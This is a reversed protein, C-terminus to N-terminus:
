RVIALPVVPVAVHFASQTQVGTVGSPPPPDICAKLANAASSRMHPPTSRRQPPAYSPPPAVSALTVPATDDSSYRAYEGSEGSLRLRPVPPPPPAGGSGPRAAELREFLLKVASDVLPGGVMAGLKQTVILRLVRRDLASPTRNALVLGALRVLEDAELLHEFLASLAHESLMSDPTGLTSLLWAKAEATHMKRLALVAASRVRLERDDVFRLITPVDVVLGAHGLAALLLCKESADTASFLDRRLAECARMAPEVLGWVHARGAVAGLAHAGAAHVEAEQRTEAYIRVLFRLTDADPRELYGLRQVFTALSRRDRRPVEESLLRRMVVQAEPTGASALLDLV